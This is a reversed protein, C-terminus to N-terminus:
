YANRKSIPHSTEDFTALLDAVREGTRGDGYPHLIQDGTLPGHIAQVIAAQITQYDWEPVNTVNAPMERGSQRRGINIARIPIAACEILGASSNGIIVTAQRLLGIFKERPLHACSRLQHCEVTAQTSAPPPPRTAGHASEHENIARIIGARGPDHNPHLVLTPAVSSAISVLQLARDYEVEDSDGVPHLLVIIQPAGLSAYERDVLRPIDSLGDMAPSGVVHVRQPDEGMAIIRLASHQTAPLHIHALKTIAHRMAEDAIGEARDGGHMQAVRIGAVSAAAAAAFAEIRDGLVLVVDPPDNAFVKAFGSTGRGLSQADAMRGCQNEHQMEVTDAVTFERQVDDISNQPPLLHAGAVIVHLELRQHAQIARMVSRLLGFEARTGTVVAIKRKLFSFEATM